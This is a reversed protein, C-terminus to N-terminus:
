ILNPCRTYFVDLRRRAEEVQERKEDQRSKQTTTRVKSANLLVWWVVTPLTHYIIVAADCAEGEHNSLQPTQKTARTRWHDPCISLQPFPLTFTSRLHSVIYCIIKSTAWHTNCLLFTWKHMVNVKTKLSALLLLLLTIIIGDTGLSIDLVM